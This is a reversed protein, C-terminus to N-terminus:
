CLRPDISIFKGLFNVRDGVYNFRRPIFFPASSRSLVRLTPIQNWIIYKSWAYVAIKPLNSIFAEFILSLAFYRHAASFETPVAMESDAARWTLRIHIRNENQIKIDVHRYALKIKMSKSHGRTHVIRESYGVVTHLILLLIIPISMDFSWINNFIIWRHPRSHRFYYFVHVGESIKGAQPLIPFLAM